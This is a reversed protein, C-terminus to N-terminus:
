DPFTLQDKFVWRLVLLPMTSNFSAECNTFNFNCKSM